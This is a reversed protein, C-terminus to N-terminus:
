TAKNKQPLALNERAIRILAAVVERLINRTDEDMNKYARAFTVANKGWSASFERVTKVDTSSIIEYLTDIFLKRKEPDVEAVWRKLTKDIFRSGETLGGHTVFDSRLVEWSYPDHQAMGSQTSHVIMYDEEHELMMGVISSQPVFTIIRDKVRQYGPKSITDTDLGPGDNNYVCIIRRQVEEPCFSASFVALNGGKSHGGIRLPLDLLSAIKKLHRVSETQAPVPTTFSMNFDEKWGVITNDTGRFAIYATSDGPLITLSSFQKEADPDFDNTYGTLLMRNFRRSESLLALLVKDDDSLTDYHVGFPNGADPNRLIAIAEGLEIGIEDVSEPVIGDFKIYSLRALILNDVDNFPSQEIPIDGRWRLYDLINSM